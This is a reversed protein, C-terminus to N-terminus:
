TKAKRGRTERSGIQGTQEEWGTLYILLLTLEKTSLKVKNNM